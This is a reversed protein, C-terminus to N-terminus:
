DLEEEGVDALAPPAHEPSRLDEILQQVESPPPPTLRSVILTIVFNLIMGVTGIGEASIGFMWTPMGYFKVGIIYFATFALGVVM